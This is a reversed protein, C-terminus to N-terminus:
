SFLPGDSGPAGGAVAVRNRGEAKARYLARDAVRVLEEITRADDPYAAVGFSATFSTPLGAEVPMAEITSRLREALRASEVKPTEPFILAFEEGGQRCATDTTRFSGLLLRGLRRLVQDGADHGFEDNIQKFHDIDILVLSLTRGYRRSRAFEIALIEDFGRRNQCGTLADRVAQTRLYNILETNRLAIATADVLAQLLSLDAAIFPADKVPPGLAVLGSGANGLPLPALVALDDPFRQRIPHDPAPVVPRNTGPPLVSHVAEAPLRAPFQEGRSAYDLRHLYEGDPQARYLAAWWSFCIERTFDLALRETEETDRVEALTHTVQQLSALHFRLGDLESQLGSRERQVSWIREFQAEFERRIPESVEPQRTWLEGEGGVAAFRFLLRLDDGVDGIAVPIPSPPLVLRASGLLSRATELCGRATQEPSGNLPVASLAVAVRAPTLSPPRDESPVHPDAPPSFSM